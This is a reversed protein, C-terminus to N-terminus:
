GGLAISVSMEPGLVVPIGGGKAHHVTERDPRLVLEPELEVGFCLSAHLGLYRRISCWIPCPTPGLRRRRDGSWRSISCSSPSLGLPLVSESELLESPKSPTLVRM